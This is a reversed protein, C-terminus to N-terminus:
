FGISTASSRFLREADADFRFARIFRDVDYDAIHQRIRAVLRRAEEPRRSSALTCAAIALIHVHANPRAIARLAFDAALEPQGLRLHSLALSGLMGFQLPDFPSLQRSTDAAVIASQPDGAQAEVFGLTYHGLAFNPSLDISRQLEALSQHREGRLWHARGMAWHAAPDREDAALSQTASEMARDIQAQRDPTLELFVNQFHTFSLGAYARAFTPDLQLAHRFLRAAEGNDAPRFKYMHWLGRHYAEWADLSSPPRLAARQCEAEEIEKAIAAVIRNVIVDLTEFTARGDCGLEDTWIIRADSTDVLEVTVFVREGRRRIRGSVVYGVGLIRGAERADVGREGLTQTTGRAIVFVARLKALRTIIDDSLGHALQSAPPATPDLASAVDGAAVHEFPMIAVSARAPRTESGRQAEGGLAPGGTGVGLERTTGADMALAPVSAVKQRWRERWWARLPGWDLGEREFARITRALHEDAERRQEARALLELLAQHAAAEFPELELWVAVRERARQQAAAEGDAGGDADKGTVSRQALERAIAIRLARYSQRRASLWTSLEPAGDLEIGELLEGRFQSLAAALGEISAASVGPEVARAIDRTDLAADSLDLAVLTNGSSLVRARDADDVLARLKSLCWRLEGRPDNPGNWLLDCLRTRSQETGELALYGLLGLVKRSRPLPVPVGDRLLRVPGVLQVQLRGASM